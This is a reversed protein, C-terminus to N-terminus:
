EIVVLGAKNVTVIKTKLPNGEARIVISVQDVEFGGPPTHGVMLFVHPDPPTFIINLYEYEEGPPETGIYISEVNILDVIYLEFDEDLGPILRKNGDCDAYLTYQKGEGISTLFIGFGYEYEGHTPAGNQFCKSSDVRKVSMAMEQARRVDQALRSAARQVALQQRASQYHPFTILALIGIISIVVLLEILTFSKEGNLQKM